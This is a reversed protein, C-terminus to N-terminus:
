GAAAEQRVLEALEVLVSDFIMSGFSSGCCLAVVKDAVLNQSRPIHCIHVSWPHALLLLISDVLSCGSLAVSCGQLILAVESNDTEFQVQRFDMDWAAILIDHAAWLESMLVSCCGISRTCGYIWCGYADRIVGGAAAWSDSTRVAGDSNAKIWGIPPKTWHSIARSTRSVSFHLRHFEAVYERALRECCLLFDGGSSDVRRCHSSTETGAAHEMWLRQEDAVLENLGIPPIVYTIGEWPQQKGLDALKDAVVNRELVTM